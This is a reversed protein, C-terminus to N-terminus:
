LNEANGPMMMMKGAKSESRKCLYCVKEYEDNYEKNMKDEMLLIQEKM